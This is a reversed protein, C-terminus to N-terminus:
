KLFKLEECGEVRMKFSDGQEKFIECVQVWDSCGGVSGM